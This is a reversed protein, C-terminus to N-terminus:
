EERNAINYMPSLTKPLLFISPSYLIVISSL